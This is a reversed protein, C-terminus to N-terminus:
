NLLMGSVRTAYPNKEHTKAYEALNAEWLDVDAQWQQLISKEALSEMEEKQERHSKQQPIANHFHTLLLRGTITDTCAENYLPSEGLGTIKKWNSYLMHEELLDRWAGPGMERASRALPNLRSWGREVGEGDTHGVWRHYNFNFEEWCKRIHALLHFKPILYIFITTAAELITWKSDFNSGARKWLNIFYQCMIDYSLVIGLLVM